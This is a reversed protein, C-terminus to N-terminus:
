WDVFFEIKGEFPSDPYPTDIEVKVGVLVDTNGIRIRSSGHVQDMLKTELEMSRYDTRCRGDNRFNAQM